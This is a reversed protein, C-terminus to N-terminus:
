ATNGSPHAGARIIAEHSERDGEVPMDMPRDTLLVAMMRHHGDIMRGSRMRVPQQEAPKWGESAELRAAFERIRFLDVHRQDTDRLFHRAQAPGFIYRELIV